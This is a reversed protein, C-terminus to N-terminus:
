ENTDAKKSKKSKKSKKAKKKSAKEENKANKSEAPKYESSKWAEAAKAGLRTVDNRGNRTVIKGDAGFVILTPIGSVQLESKLAKIKSDGFSVAYWPMSYKKMYSKMDKDTKDSSVFVVEVGHKRAVRKYFKVLKPTFARCPPCWSASFYVAVVKGKLLTATDVSKGSANVLKEPFKEEFWNESGYVSSFVGLCIVTLVFLLKKM